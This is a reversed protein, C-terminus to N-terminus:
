ISKSLTKNIKEIDIQQYIYDYLTKPYIKLEIENHSYLIFQMENSKLIKIIISFKNINYTIDDYNLYFYESNCRITEESNTYKNFYYTAMKIDDDSLDNNLSTQTLKWLKGYHIEKFEINRKPTKKFYIMKVDIPYEKTNELAYKIAEDIWEDKNKFVGGGVRTLYVTVRRNEDYAIKCATLLTLLYAGKLICTAFLAWDESKCNSDDYGVPLASAYVQTVKFEEDKNEKFVTTNEQVGVRLMNIMQKKNNKKDLLLNIINLTCVDYKKVFLYGNIMNFIENINFIDFIDKLTNIQYKGQGCGSLNSNILRGDQDVNILYNRYATGYPCAIACAPGQTGDNKYITIGDFPENNPNSMELVNFQSAVQFVAGESLEKNKILINIDGEHYINHKVTDKLSIEEFTAGILKDNKFTNLYDLIDTVNPTSFIGIKANNIVNKFFNLIKYQNILYVDIDNKQKYRENFGFVKHFWELKKDTIYNDDDPPSIVKILINLINHWEGPITYIPNTTKYDGITVIIKNEQIGISIKNDFLRIAYKTFTQINLNKYKNNYWAVYEINDVLFYTIDYTKKLESIITQINKIIDDNNNFDINGGKQNKLQFYKNKYKFYKDKYSM